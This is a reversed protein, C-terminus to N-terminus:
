GHTSPNPTGNPNAIYEAVKQVYLKGSIIMFNIQYSKPTDSVKKDALYTTLVGTAVVTNTNTVKYDRSSWISSIQEQKLRASSADLFTKLKPYGSPDAMNLIIQSNRDVNTPNVTLLRTLVYDSMDELYAPNADSGGIWYEHQIVPPLIHTRSQTLVTWAMGIALCLAFCVVVLLIKLFRNNRELESKSLASVEPNM